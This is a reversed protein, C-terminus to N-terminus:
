GELPLSHGEPFRMKKLCCPCVIEEDKSIVAHLNYTIGCDKHSCSVKRKETVEYKFGDIYGRLVGVLYKFNHDTRITYPIYNNFYPVAFNIPLLDCIVWVDINIASAIGIEYSIWNQTYEWESKHALQEKVLEEGVLLFLARSQILEDRITRWAPPEISEYESRFADIGVRACARDFVDCFNSDLKTHSEFIKAPKQKM